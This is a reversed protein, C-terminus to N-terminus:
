GRRGSRHFAPKSHPPKQAAEHPHLRAAPHLEKEVLPPPAVTPVAPPAIPTKLRDSWWLKLVDWRLAGILALLLVALAAWQLGHETTM